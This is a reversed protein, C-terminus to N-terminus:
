PSNSVPLAKAAVAAFVVVLPRSSFTKRFPVVGVVFCLVFRLEVVVVAAAVVAAAVVAAAIVGAAVGAAAAVVAAALVFAIVEVM